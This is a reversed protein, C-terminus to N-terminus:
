KLEVEQEVVAVVLQLVVVVVAAEEEGVMSRLVVAVVEEEEVVVVLVLFLPLDEFPIIYFFTPSPIILDLIEKTKRIIKSKLTYWRTSNSM